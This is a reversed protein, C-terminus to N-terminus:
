GDNIMTEEYTGMSSRGERDFVGCLEMERRGGCGLSAVRFGRSFSAEPSKREQAASIAGDQVARM